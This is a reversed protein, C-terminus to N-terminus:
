VPRVKEAPMIGQADTLQVMLEGKRFIVHRVTDRKGRYLVQDGVKLTTMNPVLQRVPVVRVESKTRSPTTNSTLPVSQLLSAIEEKEQGWATLAKHMASKIDPATFPKVLQFMAGLARAQAALTEDNKDSMLAWRLAPRLEQLAKVLELGNTSHRSFCDTLLFHPARERAAALAADPNPAIQVWNADFGYGVILNKAFTQLALSNDAVLFRVTSM